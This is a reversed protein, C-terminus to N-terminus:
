TYRAFFRTAPFSRRITSSIVFAYSSPSHVFLGAWTGRAGFEFSQNLALTITPALNGSIRRPRVNRPAPRTGLPDLVRSEFSLEGGRGTRRAKRRAQQLRHPRFQGPVLNETPNGRAPLANHVLRQLHPRAPSDRDLNQPMTVADPTRLPRSEFSLNFDRRRQVVRADDRHIVADRKWRAPVRQHQFQDLSLREFLPDIFERPSGRPTAGRHLQHRPDAIGNQM